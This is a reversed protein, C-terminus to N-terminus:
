DTARLVSILHGQPLLFEERPLQLLGQKRTELRGKRMAQKASKPKCGKRVVGAAAM